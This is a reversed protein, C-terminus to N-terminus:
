DQLQHLRYYFGKMNMLEQHTGTEIIRGRHLVFIKDSGRATSLRHAVIFCTRGSMLNGLAQQIRQETESDIYSTAEDLIIIEPDRALARAISILQREGSSISAGGEGLETMVGDPLKEVLDRCNAAALISEIRHSDPESEDPFINELITGSFLFPDQTVLATKDRISTIDFTSIDTRNLKIRGSTPSYFGILLNILSTKGSGTPGVIAVTEGSQVSFSINKLVPEDKIYAFSVNDFDISTITETLTKAPKTHGDTEKEGTKEETELILFIREASAMANQLVNYKESIDRIPRFFMRMYSIFAVLAGLSVRDALVGKGGSYIVVAIAVASLIEIVPMFVAFIHIQKMGALYNEHNLSKFDQYVQNQRGFLQIIKMGGITESFRTNIEAIKVRLIRFIDRAQNAFYVSAYFVLPLVVFSIMALYFDISLLVITIGVLLFLDKFIFVIMSTFMEHMNQVDNTVRTVLRAVPNKSFFAISLSQIHSFLQIRLDLMIKQGTFEMVLVQAFNLFFNALVVSLFIVAIMTVGRIDDRRLIAIESKSMASLDDLDIVATDGEVTFKGSHKDVIGRVADDTIKIRLRRKKEQGQANETLTMDDAPVIYRDIAIKTLYPISLDLLTICTVLFVSLLLFLRYPRVFPYIKRLMGIDYPKGLKGEEAYGYSGYM